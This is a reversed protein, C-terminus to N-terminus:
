EGENEIQQNYHRIIKAGADAAKCGVWALIAAAMVVIVMWIWGRFLRCEWARISASIRERRHSAAADAIARELQPSLRLPQTAQKRLHLLFEESVALTSNPNIGPKFSNTPYSGSSRDINDNSRQTPVPLVKFIDM